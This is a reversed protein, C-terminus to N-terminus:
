DRNQTAPQPGEWRVPTVPAAEHRPVPATAVPAPSRNAPAATDCGQSASTLIKEPGGKDGPAYQTTRVCSRGNSWTSVVSYGSVGPPLAALSTQSLGGAPLSNAARMMAAARADMDAAMRDMQAFVPDGAFPDAMQALSAPVEAAGTFSIKPPTEGVYTITETGGGPLAVRLTHINDAVVAGAFGLAALAVGGLVLKHALTM